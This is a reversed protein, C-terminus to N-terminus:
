APDGLAAQGQTILRALRPGMQEPTWRGPESLLARAGQEAIGVLAHAVLRATDRDGREGLWGGALAAVADVLQERGRQVQRAIAADAGGEGLFIVRYADPAGAVARLFATLAAALARRPDPDVQEPLAGAIESLIRQAERRLLEGFLEDKSAFCAYVVPKTVGAERAIADMSAREYGHALFVALAADLILPRRKEPGLHAARTRTAPM